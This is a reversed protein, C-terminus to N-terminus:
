SDNAQLFSSKLYSIQFQAVEYLFVSRTQIFLTCYKWYSQKKTYPYKNEVGITQM